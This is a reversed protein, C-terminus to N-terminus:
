AMAFDGLRGVDRQASVADAGDVSCSIKIRDFRMGSRRRGRWSVDPDFWVDTYEGAV